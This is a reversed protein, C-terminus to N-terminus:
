DLQKLKNIMAEIKGSALKNKEVLNDRELRLQRNEKQLTQYMELMRSINDELQSLNSTDM